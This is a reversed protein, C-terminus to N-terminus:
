MSAGEPKSDIMATGKVIAVCVLVLVLTQREEVKFVGEVPKEKAGAEGLGAGLGNPAM